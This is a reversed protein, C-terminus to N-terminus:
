IAKNQLENSYRWIYGGAKNRRGNCVASINQSSTKFQKAAEAMSEWQKIAEGTDSLQIVARTKKKEPHEAFYQKREAGIQNRRDPNLEYYRKLGSAIKEREGERLWRNRNAECLEQYMQPDQHRQKASKSMKARMQPSYSVHGEGGFSVNYGKEPDTSEYMAILAIEWQCAEEKQLGSLIVEHDFGDWGYKKIARYFHENYRYASGSHWREAPKRHTIGIYKKGNTKNTHVYVCYKKDM